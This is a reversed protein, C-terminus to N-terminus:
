KMESKAANFRGLSYWYKGSIELIRWPEGSELIRTHHGSYQNLLHTMYFIGLPLAQSHPRSPGPGKRWVSLFNSNFLPPAAIGILYSTDLHYLLRPFPLSEMRPPGVVIVKRNLLLQIMPALENDRCAHHFVDADFWRLDEIGANQIWPRVKNGLPERLSLGQIGLMYEPRGLLVDVLDDGIEKAYKHGDGTRGETVGLVM